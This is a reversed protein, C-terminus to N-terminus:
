HMQRRFFTPLIPISVNGAVPPAQPGEEVVPTDIEVEIVKTLRGAIDTSTFVM